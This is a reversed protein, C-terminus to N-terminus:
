RRAPCKPCVFVIGQEMVWGKAEAEKAAEKESTGKFTGVRTCKRCTLRIVRDKFENM